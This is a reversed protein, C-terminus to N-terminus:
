GGRGGKILEHIVDALSQADTNIKKILLTKLDEEYIKVSKIKKSMCM